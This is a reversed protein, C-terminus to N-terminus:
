TELVSKYAHLFLSVFDLYIQLIKIGSFSVNTTDPPTPLNRLFALFHRINRVAIEDPVRVHFRGVRGVRDCRSHTHAKTHGHNQVQGAVIMALQTTKLGNVQPVNIGNINFNTVHRNKKFAHDESTDDQYLHCVQFCHNVRWKM